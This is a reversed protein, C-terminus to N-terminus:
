SRCFFRSTHPLSIDRFTKFEIQGRCFIPLEVVFFRSTHPLWLHWLLKSTSRRKYEFIDKQKMLDKPSNLIFVNPGLVSGTDNQSWFAQLPTFPLAIGSWVWAKKRLFWFLKTLLFEVYPLCIEYMGRKQVAIPIPWSKTTGDCFDSFYKLTLHM